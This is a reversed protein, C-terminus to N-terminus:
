SAESVFFPFFRTRPRFTAYEEAFERQPEIALGSWDLKSELYYTKSFSQYHNAGVYVFVGGRREQLYDSIIWEEERETYHGPGYRQRLAELQSASQVSSAHPDSRGVVWIQWIALLLCFTLLAIGSPGLRITFRERTEAVAHEGKSVRAAGEQM